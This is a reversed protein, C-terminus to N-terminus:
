DSVRARASELNKLGFLAGEDSLEYENAASSNTVAAGLGYKEVHSENAKIVVELRKRSEEATYMRRGM